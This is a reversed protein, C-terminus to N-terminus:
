VAREPRRPFVLSILMSGAIVFAIIALSWTIPFHGGFLRNLYVMKLGVFVLVLALGYKLMHFKGVAGALLFYLSRLGLLAFINSTFVIMPENTLAFIAPVSDVAFIVDTAEAFVLAVMLPTAHLVGDIRVFFKQGHLQPTVPFIKRFIRVVPNKDPDMPKDPAILMKIGTIILFGGFLLVVWQYSMLVSGFSIFISRFVLAGLIGYFLIRHQYMAPVAFYSFIMVFVFVNDISLSKEVIYGTLYELSVERAAEHPDFGPVSLLRLDNPFKWSAYQFLAINFALALAIWIVSWVAAEKMSVAHAKRHFVGLDLALLLLVFAMFAAYFWWYEDIPFLTVQM